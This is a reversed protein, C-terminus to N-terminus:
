VKTVTTAKRALLVKEYVVVMVIWVSILALAMPIGIAIIEELMVAMSAPTSMATLFPPWPVIEGKIVHEVGLVIAGGFIMTNLWNIHWQKPFKKRFVTTAVGVAIPAILCAM